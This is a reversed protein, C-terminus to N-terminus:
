NPSCYVKSRKVNEFTRKYLMNEPAGSFINTTFETSEARYFCHSKQATWRKTFRKRLYGSGTATNHASCIM